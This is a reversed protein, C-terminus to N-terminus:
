YKLGLIKVMKGIEVQLSKEKLSNKLLKIAEITNLDDDLYSMFKKFISNKESESNFISKEFNFM